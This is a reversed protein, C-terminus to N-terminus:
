SLSHLASVAHHTVFLDCRHGLAAQRQRDEGMQVRQGSLAAGLDATLDEQAYGPCCPASTVSYNNDPIVTATRTLWVSTEQEVILVQRGAFQKGLSSQGNAGVVKVSPAHTTGSM